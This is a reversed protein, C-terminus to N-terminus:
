PSDGFKSYPPGTSLPVTEFWLHSSTQEIQEKASPVVNRKEDIELITIQHCTDTLDNPSLNSRVSLGQRGGDVTPELCYFLSTTLPCIIGPTRRGSNAVGKIDSGPVSQTGTYQPQKKHIVLLEAVLTSNPAGSLWGDWEPILIYQPPVPIVRATTRLM